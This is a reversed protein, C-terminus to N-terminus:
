EYKSKAEKIVLEAAKRETAELKLQEYRENVEEQWIKDVDHIIESDISELLKYSLEAREKASLSLAAEEIEKISM